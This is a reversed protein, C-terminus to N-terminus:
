PSGAETPARGARAAPVSRAVLWFCCLLGATTTLYAACSAVAAGMLGHQPILLLDLVVTVALGVGTAISNLGPRGTGYLFPTVVGGLGEGALGILLVQAAAVAPRFGGGYLLPIVLPAAAALPIAALATLLGLRPMLLRTRATAVVRGDRAFRPYFVWYVALQPLRLLEAYRSAIAYTGLVASGALAGLLLFDLRLNVLMMLSGLQARSGFAVIRRALALSPRREGRWFGRAALRTWGVSATVVDGLVLGILIAAGGRAGLLWGAAYAPLFCLEELLIVLNSGTLDLLGQASAKATIVLLRSVVKLAAWAVLPVALDRLFLAHVLPAGAAWVAAGAGGAALVIALITPALRADARTAGALFFSVAGPLGGSLVVALLWPLLRLVALDGVGGAGDLRAVLLTALVLSALAGVQAALNGVLQRSGDLWRRAAARV